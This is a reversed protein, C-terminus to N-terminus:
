KPPTKNEIEKRIDMLCQGAINKGTWSSPTCAQNDRISLGIGWFPNKTGEGITVGSNLLTYRLSPIAFKARMAQKMVEPGREQWEPGPQVQKGLHMAEVSDNAQRIQQSVEPKAAAEAKYFQYYQETSHWLRGGLEFDVPYLNSLRSYTGSFVTIGAQTKTCAQHPDIPLDHLQNHSYLRGQHYIKDGRLHTREDISKLLNVIPRLSQRRRLTEQAFDDDIYIGPRKDKLVRRNRMVTEKDTFFKFRVIIKRNKMTQPGVRHARVVSVSSMGFAEKFLDACIVRCDEGRNERIGTIIINDRRSYDELSIIRDTLIKNQNRLGSVEEKVHKLDKIEQKTSKLEKKLEDLSSAIFDMSIRFAELKLTITTDKTSCEALEQLTQIQGEILDLRETMEDRPRKKEQKASQPTSESGSSRKHKKGRAPTQPSHQVPM